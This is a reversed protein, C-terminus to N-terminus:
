RGMSEEVWPTALETWLQEPLTSNDAVLAFAFRSKLRQFALRARIGRTGALHDGARGVIKEQPPNQNAEAVIRALVQVEEVPSLVSVLTRKATM